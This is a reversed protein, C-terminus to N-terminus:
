LVQLVFSCGHQVCVAGRELVLKKSIFLSSICFPVGRRRSTKHPQTILPPYQQSQCGVLPQMADQVRSLHSNIPLLSLSNSNPVPLFPSFTHPLYPPICKGAGLLMHLIISALWYKVGIKGSNEAILLLCNQQVLM